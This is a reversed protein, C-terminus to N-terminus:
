SIATIIGGNVTISTIGSFVGSIGDVGNTNFKTDSRIDSAARVAGTSATVTLKNTAVTLNGVTNLTGTFNASASITQSNITSAVALTGTLNASSSITQGNITSAVALTGTFNASSSITQSNVTGSTVAGTTATVTFPPAGITGVQLNDKFAVTGAGTLIAFNSAAGTVDAIGLGVGTVGSHGGLAFTPSIFTAYLNNGNAVATLSGAIQVQAAFTTAATVTAAFSAGLFTAPSGGAGFVSNASTSLGGTVVVTGAQPALNLAGSTVISLDATPSDQVTGLYFGAPILGSPSGGNFGMFIANSDDANRIEAGTSTSSCDLHLVPRWVSDGQTWIHFELADLANRSSISNGYRYPLLFIGEGTVDGRTGLIGGPPLPADDNIYGDGLTRESLFARDSGNVAFEMHKASGRYWGLGTEATFAFSPVTVTGASSRVQPATVLGTTTVPSPITAFFNPISVKVVSGQPSQSLNATDLWTLWGTTALPTDNVLGSYSVTGVM